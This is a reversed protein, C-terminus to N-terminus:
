RIPKAAVINDAIVAPLRRGDKTLWLDGVKRVPESITYITGTSVGKWKVQAYVEEPQRTRLVQLMFEIHLTGAVELYKYIADAEDNTLKDLFLKLKDPMEM